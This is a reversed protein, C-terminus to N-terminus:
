PFVHQLYILGCIGIYLSLKTLIYAEDDEKSTVISLNYHGNMIPSFMTFVALVMAMVGFDEPSYIRTAIPQAIFAIIQSVITGGSLMLISKFDNKRLIKVIIKFYSFFM